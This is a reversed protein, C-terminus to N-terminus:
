FVVACCCCVCQAVFYLALNSDRGSSKNAVNKSLEFWFSYLSFLAARSPTLTNWVPQFM